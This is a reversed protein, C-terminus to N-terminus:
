FAEETHTYLDYDIDISLSCIQEMVLWVDFSSRRCESRICCIPLYLFSLFGNFTLYMCLLLLLAFHIQGEWRKGFSGKLENHPPHVRRSKMTLCCVRFALSLFYLIISLFVLLIENGASLLFGPGVVYIIYM